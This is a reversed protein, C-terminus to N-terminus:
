EEVKRFFYTFIEKNLPGFYVEVRQGIRLGEYSANKIRALLRPGEDLDIMATIYPVEDLYAKPAIYHETFSYITGKGSLRFWEYKSSFCSPCISRPPFAIYKCDLCRTTQFIGNKLGDWFPRNFETIRPLVREHSESM